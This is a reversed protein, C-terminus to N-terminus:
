CSLKRSTSNKLFGHVDERFTALPFLESQGIYENEVFCSISACGLIRIGGFNVGPDVGLNRARISHNDM